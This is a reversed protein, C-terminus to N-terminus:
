RGAVGTRLAVEQLQFSLTRGLREGTTPPTFAPGEFRVDVPGIPGRLAAPPLPVDHDAFTDTLQLAGAAEGNITVEVTCDGPSPTRGCSARVRLVTPRVPNTRDCSPFMVRARPSAWHFRERATSELGYLGQMVNGAHGGAHLVAGACPRPDGVASAARLLRYEVTHRQPEGPPGDYRVGFTPVDIQLLDIEEWRVQHTLFVADGDNATLYLIERGEALWRLVQAEFRGRRREGGRDDRLRIVPLAARDWMMALPTAVGAEQGPHSFLLLADDPIRQAIADLQGVLGAKERLTWFPAAMAIEHALVLVIGAAAAARAAPRARGSVRWLTWAAAAIAVAIGPVVVPLFRRMMWPHDPFIRQNWFYLLAFSLFLALFPLWETRREVLWARLRLVLGAAALILGPQSFYWGVRLLSAEVYTRMGSPRAAFPELGPRIWLAFVFAAGLVLACVAWAARGHRHLREVGPRLRKRAAIMAACTGVALATLLWLPRVLRALDVVYPRSFLWAHVAGWTALALAAPLFGRSIWRSSDARSIAAVALAPVIGLLLLPADIRLLFCTGLAAGGLLGWRLGGTAQGAAMSWLAAFVGLQTAPESLPTRAGWIQALNLALVAAAVVAAGPGLRRRVFFFVGLTALVGFLPTVLFLGAVGGLWFGVALYAPHLHLFQPVLQGTAAHAIYFGPYLASAHFIRRWEGPTAALADSHVRLTGERALWVATNAYTGGDRGGLVDESRAAVTAAALALVLSAALADRPSPRTLRAARRRLRSLGACVVALAILMTLPSLAGLEALLLAIWGTVLVGCLAAAFITELPDDREEPAAPLRTWILWGAAAAAAPLLWASWTM